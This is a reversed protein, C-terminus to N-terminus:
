RRRNQLKRKATGWDEFKSVGSRARELRAKLVDAHWAPSPVDDPVEQLTGWIEEITRLKDAISMKDLPLTPKM